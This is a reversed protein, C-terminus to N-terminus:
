APTRTLPLRGRRSGRAATSCKAASCTAVAVTWRSHVPQLTRRRGPFTRQLLCVLGCEPEDYGGQRDAFPESRHRRRRPRILGGEEPVRWRSASESWRNRKVVNELMSAQHETTSTQGGMSRV